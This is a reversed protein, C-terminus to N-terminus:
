DDIYKVDYEKFFDLVEESEKKNLGCTLSAEHINIKKCKNIIEKIQSMPIFPNNKNSYDFREKPIKKLDEAKEVWVSNLITDYDNPGNDLIFYYKENLDKQSNIFKELKM